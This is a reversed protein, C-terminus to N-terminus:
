YDSFNEDTSLLRIASKLNQRLVKTLGDSAESAAACLEVNNFLILTEKTSYVSDHGVKAIQIFRSESVICMVSVSRRTTFVLGKSVLLETHRRKILLLGRVHLVRKSTQILFDFLTLGETM